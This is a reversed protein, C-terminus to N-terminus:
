DHQNIYQEILTKLKTTIKRNSYELGQFESVPWIGIISNCVFIEDAEIMETLEIQRQIVKIDNLQALEIILDRMVGKIGASELSPTLLTNELVIFINSRTGEIVRRQDDLMLGEAYEDPNWESQALVQELRCLTKLGALRANVTVPTNCHYLRIGKDYNHDSYVPLDHFSIIRRPTACDDPRYGRGGSGRTVIIKIVGNDKSAILQDIESKLLVETPCELGINTCGAQLRHMHQSWLQPQRNSIRITEFLGDGYALGRDDAPLQDIQQGDILM